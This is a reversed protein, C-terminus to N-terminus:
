PLQAVRYFRAVIGTATTDEQKMHGEGDPVPTGSLPKWPQNLDDTYESAYTRGAVVNWAIVPKTGSALPLITVQISAESMLPMLFVDQSENRDEAVLDSAFSNFALFRSNASFQPENSRDNASGTGSANSSALYTTGSHLNRVFIDPKGNADNSTLDDAWSRFAMWTGDPSLVPSESPGNGAATEERNVSVLTVKSPDQTDMVFVDKTQNTDASSLSGSADVLALWRGDSSLSVVLEASSTAPVPNTLTMLNRQTGEAVDFLSLTTVGRYSWTSALFRCDPTLVPRGSSAVLKKNTRQALDFWYVNTSQLFYLGDTGCFALPTYTKAGTVALTVEITTGLELDRIYLDDNSNPDGPVIRASSVYAVYRGAVSTIPAVASNVGGPPTATAAGVSVLRTTKAVMDRLYVDEFQNTEEAGLDTATSIFAVYRGDPSLSPTHSAGNAPVGNTGVSILECKGAVVDRVFVDFSGNADSPVVDPALSTFLVLRNDNSIARPSAWSLGSPTVSPSEADSVSVLESVGSVVDHALVDQAGNTDGQILNGDVAAFAVVRGDASLSPFYCDADAAAQDDSAWSALSVQQAPVNVVYVRHADTAIGEVLNTAASVFAIKSGDANVAISDCAKSAPSGDFGQSVLVLAPAGDKWQYVQGDYVATITLGDDSMAMETVLKLPTTIGAPLGIVMLMTDTERDYRFVRAASAPFPTRLLDNAESTFAVYRGDDSVRPDYSARNSAPVQGNPRASILQNTSAWLDRFWILNTMVGQFVVYRGNSSIDPASAGETVVPRGLRDTVTIRTTTGLELDRLFVDGMFNVDNPALDSALSEFVVHRGTPTTQPGSSGANGGATGAQNVSLLRTLGAEIDRMYIDGDGKTPLAILNSATSEFVVSKGDGSFVPAYSNGNAGDGTHSVSLLWTHSGALDRVFLDVRLGNNDGAVLDNATSSFAVLKGDSSIQAGSSEGNGTVTTLANRDRVSVLELGNAASVSLIGFSVVLSLVVALPFGYHSM